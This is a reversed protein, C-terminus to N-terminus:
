IKLLELERKIQQEYRDMYEFNSVVGINIFDYQIINEALIIKEVQETKTHYHSDREPITPPDYCMQRNFERMELYEKTKAHKIHGMTYPLKKYGGIRRAFVIDDPGWGLILNTNGCSKEFQEKTTVVCGGVSDPNHYEILKFTGIPLEEVLKGCSFPILPMQYKNMESAIDVYDMFRYDLNIFAVLNHTAKYFGLNSLQGKRFLLNDKQNCFIIEAEPYYKRINFIFGPRMEDRGRCPVIFSINSM